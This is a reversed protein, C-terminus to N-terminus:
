LVIALDKAMLEIKGLLEGVGLSAWLIFVGVLIRIFIPISIGTMKKIISFVPPFYILSLLSIFIGFFPDNGWGMNILGIVMAIIGFAIGLISGPVTKYVVM